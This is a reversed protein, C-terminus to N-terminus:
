EKDVGGLGPKGAGIQADVVVIGFYKKEKDGWKLKIEATKRILWAIDVASDDPWLTLSFRFLQFIEEYGQMGLVQFTQGGVKCSYQAVNSPIEAM